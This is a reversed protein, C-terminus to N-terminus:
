DRVCRVSRGYFLSSEYSGAETRNFGISRGGGYYDSTRVSTWFHAYGGFDQYDGFAFCGAPKANFGTANNLRQDRGPTNLLHTTDWGAPAALAKAESLSVYMYDPDRRVFDTMTKWEANSPVHWGDPCVGQVGSPSANSFDAGHMVAAWNYLYGFQAVNAENDAPAYRYAVTDSSQYAGNPIETGDAYRTTKLNSAMWVQEGIQVADYLNGDIDAVADSIVIAPNENYKEKCSAMALVLLTIWIVYRIKM